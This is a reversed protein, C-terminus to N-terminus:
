SNFSVSNSRRKDQLHLHQWQELVLLLKLGVHVALFQLHLVDQHVVHVLLARGEGHLVQRAPDDGDDHHHHQSHHGAQQDQHTFM